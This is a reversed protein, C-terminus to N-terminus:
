GDQAKLGQIILPMSKFYAKALALAKQVLITALEVDDVDEATAIEENCVMGCLINGALAHVKSPGEIEPNALTQAAVKQFLSSLKVSMVVMSGAHDKEEGEYSTAIKPNSVMAALLQQSLESIMELEASM